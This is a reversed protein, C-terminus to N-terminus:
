RHDAPRVTSAPAAAGRTRRLANVVFFAGLAVALSVLSWFFQQSMEGPTMAMALLVAAMGLIAAYSLWPFLWM